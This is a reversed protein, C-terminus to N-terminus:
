TRPRGPPGGFLIGSPLAPFPLALIVEELFWILFDRCCCMAATPGRIPTSGLAYYHRGEGPLRVV